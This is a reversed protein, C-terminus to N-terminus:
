DTGKWDTAVAVAVFVLYLTIFAALTVITGEM